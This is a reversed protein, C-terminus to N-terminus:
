GNCDNMTKEVTSKTEQELYSTVLGEDTGGRNSQRIIQVTTLQATPHKQNMEAYPLLKM